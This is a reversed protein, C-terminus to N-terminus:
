ARVFAAVSRAEIVLKRSACAQGGGVRGAASDLVCLWADPAEDALVFSVPEPSRNV